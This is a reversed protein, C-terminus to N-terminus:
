HGRNKNKNKSAISQSLKNLAISLSNLIGGLLGGYQGQIVTHSNAPNYASIKAPINAVSTLPHEEYHGWTVLPISLEATVSSAAGGGTVIGITRSNRLNIGDKSQKITDQSMRYGLAIAIEASTNLKVETQHALYEDPAWALQVGEEVGIGTGKGGFVDIGNADWRVGASISTFGTVGSYSLEGYKGTPDKNVIPNDYGYAYSNLSQPNTLIQYKPNGLFV